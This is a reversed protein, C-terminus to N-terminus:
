SGQLVFRNEHHAAAASDSSRHTVSGQLLTGPGDRGAAVPGDQLLAVPLGADSDGPDVEGVLPRDLGQRRFGAADVMHDTGGGGPGASGGGFQFGIRTRLDNWVLTTPDIMSALCKAGM